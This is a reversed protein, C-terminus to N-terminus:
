DTQGAERPKEKSREGLAIKLSILYCQDANETDFCEMYVYPNNIVSFADASAIADHDSQTINSRCVAGSYIAINQRNIARRGGRRGYIFM